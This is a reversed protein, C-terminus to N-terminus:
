MKAESVTYIYPTDTVSTILISNIKICYWLTVYSAISSYSHVVSCSKCLSHIGYAVNDYIIKNVSM